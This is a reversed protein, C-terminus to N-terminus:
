GSTSRAAGDPDGTPAPWTRSRRGPESADGAAGERDAARGRPREDPVRRAEEPRRHRADQDPGERGRPRLRPREQQLTRAQRPGRGTGEPREGGFLREFVAKPDVEKANPTSEGRWSLNHRTPAALLRSDCNGANGAASSASNSRRSGPRTASRTPSPQDASIGVRIDAGHTKRPRAAPSSRPCRAPTTAPATATPGPRTAADPRHPRQRLGQVADLPELIDPLEGLKGDAKPTWDAM